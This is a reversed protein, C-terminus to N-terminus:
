EPGDESSTSDDTMGVKNAIHFAIDTMGLAARVALNIAVIAVVIAIVFPNTFLDALGTTVDGWQLGGPLMHKAGQYTPSLRSAQRIEGARRQLSPAIM